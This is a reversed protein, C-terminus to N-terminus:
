MEPDDTSIHFEQGTSQLLIFVVVLHLSVYPWLADRECERPTHTGGGVAPLHSMLRHTETLRHNLKYVFTSARFPPPLVLMRVLM